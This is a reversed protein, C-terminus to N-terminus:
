CRWRRATTAGRSGTTPAQRRQRAHAAPQDQSRHRVPRQRGQGSADVTYALLDGSKNFAIDGVSGLLQDRGTVLNHLIVDTGRPGPPRRRPAAAAAGGAAPAPTEGGGRRRPGGGRGGGDRPRRKLILHTSSPSFTFSQIDQWSKVRRDRPQAARRADATAPPTASAARGAAGPTGADPPTAPPQAPAPPTRPQRQRRTPPTPPPQAAADADDASETGAADDGAGPERAASAPRAPRCRPTAAPRPADRRTARAAGGRGGRGGTPDVQYAIWKSDASFVGGTRTRCRPTSTRRSASSICCRSRKPPVTNTLSQGYTSGTATAPFRRAASPAGSRTTRSPSSRKRRRRSRPRCRTPRRSGTSSPPRSQPAASRARTTSTM